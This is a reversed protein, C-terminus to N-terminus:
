LILKKKCSGSPTCCKAYCHLKPKTIQNSRLKYNDLAKNNTKYHEEVASCFRCEESKTIRQVSLLTKTIHHFTMNLIINRPKAM